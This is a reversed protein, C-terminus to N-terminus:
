LEADLQLGEIWTYLGALRICMYNSRNPFYSSARTGHRVQFIQGSGLKGSDTSIYSELGSRHLVGHVGRRGEWVYYVPLYTMVGPYRLMMVFFVASRVSLVGRRAKGNKRKGWHGESLFGM